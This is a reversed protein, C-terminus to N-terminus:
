CARFKYICHEKIYELKKDDKYKQSTTIDMETANTVIIEKEIFSTAKSDCNNRMYFITDGLLEHLKDTNVTANQCKNDVWRDHYVVRTIKGDAVTVGESTLYTDFNPHLSIIKIKNAMTDPPDIFIRMQSDKDYWRENNEMPSKVRHYYGDDVEFGGSVITNSSDLSILDEYTPCTSTFNNKIMTICLKSLVIGINRDALNTRLSSDYKIINNNIKKVPEDQTSNTTIIEPQTSNTPITKTANVKPKEVKPKEIPKEEDVQVQLKNKDRIYKNKTDLLSDLQLKNASIEKQKNAILDEIRIIEQIQNWEGNNNAKAERLNNKEIDIEKDIVSIKEKTKSIDTEIIKIKTELSKIQEKIKNEEVPTLAYVTGVSVMLFLLVVLAGEKMVITKFEFVLPKSIDPYKVLLHVMKM